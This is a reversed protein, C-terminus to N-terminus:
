IGVNKYIIDINRLYYKPDFLKLLEIKTFNDTILKNKLLGMVFLDHKGELTEAAIKQITDYAEERSVGKKVLETLVRQSYVVGKTLNVNKEVNKKFIVLNDITKTMRELIYCTLNM